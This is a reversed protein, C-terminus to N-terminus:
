SAADKGRIRDAAHKVAAIANALQEPNPEDKASLIQDAHLVCRNVEGSVVLARILDNLQQELIVVMDILEDKSLGQHDM